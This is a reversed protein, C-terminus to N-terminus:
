RWKLQVEQLYSWKWPEDPSVIGADELAFRRDFDNLTHGDPSFTVPSIEDWELMLAWYKPYTRRLLRLQGVRQNPCFWCGGRTSTAYIPSLLGNEECWRRCDEETWGLEVLPSKKIGSM